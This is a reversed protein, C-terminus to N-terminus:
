FGFVLRLYRPLFEQSISHRMISDYLEGTKEQVQNHNWLSCDQLHYLQHGDGTPQRCLSGWCTQLRPIPKCFLSHPLADNAALHDILPLLLQVGGPPSFITWLPGAVLILVLVLFNSTPTQCVVRTTVQPLFQLGFLLFDAMDDVVWEPLLKFLM